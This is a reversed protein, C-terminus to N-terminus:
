VLVGEPYSLAIRKATPNALQSYTPRQDCALLYLMAAMAKDDHSGSPAGYSGDKLRKFEVLERLVEMDECQFMESQMATRMAEIMRMKSGREGGTTPLGLPADLPNRAGERHKYVNKYGINNYLVHQFTFAGQRENLVFAMNYQLAVNHVLQAFETQGYIGSLVADVRGGTTGIVAVSYDRGQIGEGCDVGIVYNQGSAPKRWIRYNGSLEQEIPRRVKTIMKNLLITDFVTETTAIFCSIEDEPFEQKFREKQESIKLRRWRANDMGIPFEPHDENWRDILTSEEDTYAFVGQDAELAYPSGYPLTYKEPMFMWPYFHPRWNNQRNMAEVFISYFKNGVGNPTSQIVIPADIPMSNIISTYIEDAVSDDYHAFEDILLASPTRGRGKRRGGATQVQILSNGAPFSLANSRDTDTKPRIKEPLNDHFRRVSRFLAEAEEADYHLIISEFEPITISYTYFEALTQTSFGVKRPKNKVDRVSRHSDYDAQVRNYEFPILDGSEGRIVLYREIFPRPRGDQAEAICYEMWESENKPADQTM